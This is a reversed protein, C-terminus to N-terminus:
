ADHKECARRQESLPSSSATMTADCSTVDPTYLIMLRAPRCACLNTRTGRFGLGSDTGFRNWNPESVCARLNVKWSNAAAKAAHLLLLWPRVEPLAM